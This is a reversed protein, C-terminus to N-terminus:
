KRLRNENLTKLIAMRVAVGNEVQNLIISRDADAVDSNLEVGRNIPGPHLVVADKKALNLRALNLGFFKSYERSSPFGVDADGRELQIRLMIIADADRCAQEMNDAIECGFIDAKLPMMMAPAFLTVHIGLTKMAWIDSRAVRSRAIDGIIAVKTNRDFKKGAEKLSCLDLLAQSPHEHTGDGANVVSASTHKAVLEAAGSSPHRIIIIDSKMAALNSITDILTEGKKVSSSSATFNIADAGLRKAAIEFSTRTRTSNEFFANVTTQGRLYDAKKFSSGNLSKFEDASELFHYIEDSSLFETGLLDKHLYPM